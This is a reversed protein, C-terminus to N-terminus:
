KGEKQELWIIYNMETDMDYEINNDLMYSSYERVYRNDINALARYLPIHIDISDYYERTFRSLQETTYNM